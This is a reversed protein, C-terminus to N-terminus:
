AVPGAGPGQEADDESQEGQGGVEDVVSEAIGPGVHCRSVM